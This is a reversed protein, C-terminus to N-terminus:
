PSSNALRHGKKRDWTGLYAIQFFSTLCISRDQYKIIINKCLHILSHLQASLTLQFKRNDQCRPRRFRKQVPLRIGLRTSNTVRSTSSLESRGQDALCPRWALVLFSAGQSQGVVVRMAYRRHCRSQLFKHPSRADPKSQLREDQWRSWGGPTQGAVPWKVIDWTLEQTDAVVNPFDGSVPHSWDLGPDCRRMEPFRRATQPLRDFLMIQASLLKRICRNSGVAKM